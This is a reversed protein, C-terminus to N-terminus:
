EGAKAASRRGRVTRVIMTIIKILLFLGSVGLLAATFIANLKTPDWNRRMIAALTATVVIYPVTLYRCWRDLFVIDMFFYFVLDVALLILGVTSAMAVDLKATYALVMGLNLITALVTWTAYLALGNHFLLRIFFVDMKMGRECFQGLNKELRTLGLGLMIFLTGPLVAMAILSYNILFKDFLFLWAINSLNNIINLYFIDSPWVDPSLYVYDGDKTKRCLAIIVYLMWLIQLAYIPFWIIFIGGDPTIELNYYDSVDGTFNSFVGAFFSIM